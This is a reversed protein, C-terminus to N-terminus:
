VAGHVAVHLLFVGFQDGVAGLSVDQILKIHACLITELKLQLGIQMLVYELEDFPLFEGGPLEFPKKIYWLGSDAFQKSALKGQQTNGLKQIIGV